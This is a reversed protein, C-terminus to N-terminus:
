RILMELKKFLNDGRLNKAIIKGEKDILINQPIGTIRFQQALSNDWGKLDSVQSWTLEDAEIANLWAQREKDLSVGLVTFNKDKYQNYAEVVTPNEARCPGCWSAWFDILLYKGRFSRLTIMNGNSDAQEFDPLVTGIDNNYLKQLHEEVLKALAIKQVDPKLLYYLQKSKTSIGSVQNFCLIALAAVNSGPHDRVFSECISAINSKATSDTIDKLLDISHPALQNSFLEFHQQSPSGKITLKTIADMKGSIIVSSNELFLPVKESIGEFQLYLFDPSSLKGKLKFKGQLCNAENVRAGTQENVLFVKSKLSLGEIQGTILYGGSGAAPSSAKVQAFLVFPFVCICFLISRM